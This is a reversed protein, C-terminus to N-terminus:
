GLSDVYGLISQIRIIDNLEEHMAGRHIADEQRKQWHAIYDLKEDADSTDQFSLNVHDEFTIAGANFLAASLGSVENGSASKLNIKGAVEKWIPSIDVHVGGKDGASSPAVDDNDAKLPPNTENSLRDQDRVTNLNDLNHSDNRILENLNMNYARVSNM